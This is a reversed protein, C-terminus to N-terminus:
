AAPPAQASEVLRLVPQGPSASLDLVNRKQLLLIKEINVHKCVFVRLYKSSLVLIKLYARRHKLAYTKSKNSTVTKKNKVKVSCVSKPKLIILHM